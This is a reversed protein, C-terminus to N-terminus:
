IHILSLVLVYVLVPVGGHIIFSIPYYNRDMWMIVPKKKLWMAMPRKMDKEDRWVIWGVWAWVKGEFPCHPDGPKDAFRHHQSHYNVWDKVTGQMAVMLNLMTVIQGPVTLEGAKHQMIRHLPGIGANCIFVALLVAGIGIPVYWWHLSIDSMFIGACVISILLIIALIPYIFAAFLSAMSLTERNRPISLSRPKM